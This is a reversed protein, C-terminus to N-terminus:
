SRSPERVGCLARMNCLVASAQTTHVETVYKKQNELFVLFLAFCVVHVLLLVVMVIYTHRNYRTLDTKAKVSSLLKMLKKFRRGRKFDTQYGGAESGSVVSAGDLQSGSIGSAQAPFRSLSLPPASPHSHSCLSPPPDLDLVDLSSSSPLPLPLLALPGLLPFSFPFLPQDGSLWELVKGYM